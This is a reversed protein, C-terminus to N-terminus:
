HTYAHWQLTQVPYVLILCKCKIEHSFESVVPQGLLDILRKCARDLPFSGLSQENSMSLM